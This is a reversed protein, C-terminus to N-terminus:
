SERAIVALTEPRWFDSSRIDWGLRLAYSILIDEPLRDKIRRKRYQAPDEFPLVPGDQYFNWRDEQLCRVIRRSGDRFLRKFELIGNETGSRCYRLCLCDLRHDRHVHAILQSMGDESNSM